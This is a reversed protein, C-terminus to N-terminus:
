ISFSNACITLATIILATIFSVLYTNRTKRYIATSVLSAVMFNPILPYTDGLTVSDLAKKPMLTTHGNVRLTIYFIFMVIAVGGITVAMPVIYQKLIGAKTEKSGSYTFTTNVMTLVLASVAFFLFYIPFYKLRLAPVPKIAFFWYGFEVPILQYILYVILYGSGVVILALLLSKLVYSIKWKAETASTSIGYTVINGGKKKGIAFHWIIFVVLILLGSAAAWYSFANAWRFPMIQNAKSSLGIPYYITIPLIGAVILALIKSAKSVGIVPRAEASTIKAFYKTSSLCLALAVLFLEFGIVGIISVIEKLWFIQNSYPLDNVQGVSLDAFQLMKGIADRNILNGSHSTDTLYVVRANNEDFSGYIQNAVVPGDSGVANIMFEKGLLESTKDVGMIASIWEDYGSVIYSMNFHLDEPKLSSLRMAFGGSAIVMAGKVEDQHAFATNFSFTGGQSHGILVINNNEVFNCNQLYALARSVGGDNELGQLPNGNADVMKTSVDTATYDSWGSGNCDVALVVYGRRALELTVNSMMGMYGNGGHVTVVAPAPNAFNVEKPKYLVGHLLNGQQDPFYVNSVKIKGWSSNLGSLVVTCLLIIAMSIFLLRTRKKM